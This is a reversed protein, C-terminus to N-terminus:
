VAEESTQLDMQLVTQKTRLRSDNKKTKRNKIIIKISVLQVNHFQALDKRPFKLKNIALSNRTIRKEVSGKFSFNFFYVKM